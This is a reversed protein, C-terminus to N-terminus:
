KVKWCEFKCITVRVLSGGKGILSGMSEYQTIQGFNPWERQIQSYPSESHDYGVWVYATIVEPQQYYIQARYESMGFPIPPPPPPAPTTVQATTQSTSTRISFTMFGLILGSLVLFINLSINRM